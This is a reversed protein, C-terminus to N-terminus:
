VLNRPVVIALHELIMRLPASRDHLYTRFAQLEGLLETNSKTFGVRYIAAEIGGVIALAEDRHERREEEDKGTALRKVIASRKEQTAGLFEKAAESINSTQRGVHTGLIQIRSRLTPLLGGLSPLVLFLYTGPPPEEFIKLLANQAERYARSAAIVIAKADGALPAQAAIEGVRRADEVSLLGYELIVVDPHGKSRMGLEREIWRVAEEVGQTREAEIAYAHHRLEQRSAASM